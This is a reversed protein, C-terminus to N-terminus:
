KKKHKNLYEKAIPLGLEASKKWDTVANKDNGIKQFCVGRNLLMVPNDPQIKLYDTYDNIALAFMNTQSYCFARGSFYAAYNFSKEDGSKSFEIASTYEIIAKRYQKRFRYIEAIYFCINDDADYIRSGIYFYNLLSDSYNQNMICAKFLIGYSNFLTSDIRIAKIIPTFSEKTKGSNLLNTAKNLYSTAENRAEISVNYNRDQAISRSILIFM